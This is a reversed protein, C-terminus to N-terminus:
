SGMIKNLRLWEAILLGDADRHKTILDKKDPCLEIGKIKSYTKLRETREKAFKKGKLGKNIAIADPILERQWDGSTCCTYPIDNGELAILTAEFCRMSSQIVKFNNVTAPNELLAIVPAIDSLERLFLNLSPFHIRSINQKKKTYSQASFSETKLFNYFEGQIIGITGTVGNDIGLYIVEQSQKNLGDITYNRNRM